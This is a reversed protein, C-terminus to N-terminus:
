TCLFLAVRASILCVKKVHSDDFLIWLRMKSHFFFTSYHHGYYCVVGVLHLRTSSAWDADVLSYFMQFVSVVIYICQTESFFRPTSSIAIVGDVSKSFEKVTSFLLLNDIFYIYINGAM